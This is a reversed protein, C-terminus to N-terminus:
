RQMYPPRYPIRSMGTEKMSGWKCLLYDPNLVSPNNTEDVLVVVFEALRLIGM